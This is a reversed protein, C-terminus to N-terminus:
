AKRIARYHREQEDDYERLEQELSKIDGIHDITAIYGRNLSDILVIQGTHKLDIGYSAATAKLHAANFPDFLPLLFPEGVIVKELKEIRRKHDSKM